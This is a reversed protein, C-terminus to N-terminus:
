KSTSLASTALHSQVSARHAYAKEVTTSNKPNLNKIFISGDEKWEVRLHERSVYGLNEDPFLQELLNSPGESRGLILSGEKGEMDVTRNFKSYLGADGLEVSILQLRQTDSDKLVGVVQGAHPENPLDQKGVRIVAELEGKVGFEAMEEKTAVPEQDPAIVVEEHSSLEKTLVQRENEAFIGPTIINRRFWNRDLSYGEAHKFASWREGYAIELAKDWVSARQDRNYFHQLFWAPSKRAIPSEPYKERLEEQTTIANAVQSPDPYEDTLWNCFATLEAREVRPHSAELGESWGMDNMLLQLADKAGAVIPQDSEQSYVIGRNLEAMSPVPFELYPTAPAILQNPSEAHKFSM